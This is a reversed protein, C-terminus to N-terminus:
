LACGALEDLTVNLTTSVDSGLNGYLTKETGSCAGNVATRLNAASSNLTGAWVLAMIVLSPTPM